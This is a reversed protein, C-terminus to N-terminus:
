ETDDAGEEDELEEEFRTANVFGDVYDVDTITVKLRDGLKALVKIPEDGEALMERWNSPNIEQEIMRNKAYGVFCMSSSPDVFTHESSIAHMPIRVNIMDKLLLFVAKATMGSAIGSQLKPYEEKMVYFALGSNVVSRELHDAAANQESCHLAMDEIEDATYYPNKTDAEGRILAKAIRHLILDAYRRIPSTFHSYCVSGLGFHGINGATYIARGLTSLVQLYSIQRMQEDNITKVQDLLKRFPMLWEMRQEETLQALGETVPTGLDADEPEKDDDDEDPTLGLADGLSGGGKVKISIGGFSSGGAMRTLEKLFAEDDEDEEPEAELIPPPMELSLDLGMAAMRSNFIEENARDPLPHCRYICPAKADRAMEAVAENAAVMFTEIMRTSATARKAQMHMTDSSVELRLEPTELELGVRNNWIQTSLKHLATFYPDAEEIRENVFQYHLNKTVLIVSEMVEYGTRHGDANYEMQVTMAFRPTSENLSCLDESLRKPLMPLVGTPLYVSTARKRAHQDLYDDRKVYFSVDAIHVWLTSSGDDNTAFSIADDFDKATAPDITYTELHQLDTRRQMEEPQESPSSLDEAFQEVDDSTTWQFDPAKLVNRYAIHELAQQPNWFETLVLFKAFNNSVSNYRGGVWDEALYQMMRRVSFGDIAFISTGGIGEHSWTDHRVFSQMQEQIWKIRAQDEEGEAATSIPVPVKVMIIRGDELEEEVDKFMRRRLRGLGAIETSAKKAEEPNIPAWVRGRGGVTNFYGIGPYKCLDLMTEVQKRRGKSVSEFWIETLDDVEFETRPDSVAKEWLARETLEVDTGVTQEMKGEAHQKIFDQLRAKLDKEPVQRKGLNMAQKFQRKSLHKTRMECFGKLTYVKLFVERKKSRRSIYIGLNNPPQLGMLGAQFEIIDGPKM